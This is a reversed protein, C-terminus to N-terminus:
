LKDLQKIVAGFDKPYEAEISITDGSNPYTFSIFAAHLATRSILPREEWTDGKYNRKLDSLFVPKGDGYLPDCLLAYGVASAHVRVQHTRGTAPKAEILSIRNWRKLVSFHTLSEKGSGDIITRHDADGDPRLPLDCDIKDWSPRGWVLAHYIKTVAGTEFLRSLMRHTEQNKAIIMSGSTDKDLRHVIFYQGTIQPLFDTVVPANKDYRDAISLVGAPKNIAIIANDEYIIQIKQKM